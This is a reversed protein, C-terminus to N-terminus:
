YPIVQPNLLAVVFGRFFDSSKKKSGKELKQHDKKLIFYTGLGLFFLVVFTQFTTSTNISDLFIKGFLIAMWAHFTEVFAAATSFRIGAKLDKSITISVVSLNIPGFAIGGLIAGSFGFLLHFFM